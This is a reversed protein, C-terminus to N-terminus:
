SSEVPMGTLGLFSRALDVGAWEVGTLWPPRSQLWQERSLRLRHSEIAHGSDVGGLLEIGDAQYGLRESVRRSRENGEVFGSTAWNVGFHSFVLELVLARMRSGVGRGQTGKALYSGTHVERRVPFESAEVGQCGVVEGGILVAFALEWRERSTASRRAWHYRLFNAYRAEVTAARGLLLGPMFREQGAEVIGEEAIGALAVVDEDSAERLTLDEHVVSLGFLPWAGGM